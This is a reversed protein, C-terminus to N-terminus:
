RFGESRQIQISGQEETETGKWRFASGEPRSGPVSDWVSVATMESIASGLELSGGM